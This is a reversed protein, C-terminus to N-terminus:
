LNKKARRQELYSELAHLGCSSLNHKAEVGGKRAALVGYKIHRFGDVSHADPNISIMAGMEIACDIYSWDIDLRRPHANLEIVVNNEVCTEIIKEHDVPYGERSLLLRGTMHGLITTYPNQIAGLLRLMAKEETMKLNSHVSAIVLDFTALVESNYDLSGDSLIDAEISKFIRFPRLKENLEDIYHHQEKIRDETLGKAYYASKSHDSLVIYEFGMEMAGKAMEEISNIGDSWNSHSHIIGKIDQPQIIVPLKNDAAKSIIAEKERLCPLIYPVNVAAFLHKEDAYLDTEPFKTEWANLFTGSCTTHFLISGFNNDTAFYFKLSTNDPTKFVSYQGNKGAETFSLAELFEQLSAADATTVWELMEITPSQRKFAGTLEFKSNSFEAVLQQQLSLALSEIEAYLYSGKSRLYFEISDKVGQQTKEGFGKYLLLRNENCAYLLEGLTEIGMEKWIVAIKKPGLGKINLMEVVGPPTKLLYEDLTKLEGTELIELVKKGTAEGIGKIAFIKEASQTDLEVPLKDINFAAISYSKARFSNEGNIDMLKSLLSFIDAISSNNM